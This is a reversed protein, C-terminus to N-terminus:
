IRRFGRHSLYFKAGRFNGFLLPAGMCISLDLYFRGVRVGFCGANASPLYVNM